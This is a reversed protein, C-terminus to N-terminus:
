GDPWAPACLVTRNLSPDLVVRNERGLVEERRKFFIKHAHTNQECTHRHVVHM